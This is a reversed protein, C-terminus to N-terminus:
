NGQHHVVPAPDISQYRKCHGVVQKVERRKLPLVGEDVDENWSKLMAEQFGDIENKRM